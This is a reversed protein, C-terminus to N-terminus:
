QVHIAYTKAKRKIRLFKRENKELKKKSAWFKKSEVRGNVKKQVSRSYNEYVFSVPYHSLIKNFIIFKQFTWCFIKRKERM